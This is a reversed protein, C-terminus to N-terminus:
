RVVVPAVDGRHITVPRMSALAVESRGSKSEDPCNDDSKEDEQSDVGCSDVFPADGSNKRGDINLIWIYRETEIIGFRGDINFRRRISYGLCGSGSLM